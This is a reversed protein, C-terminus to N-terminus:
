GNDVVDVVDFCGYFIYIHGDVLSPDIDTKSVVDIRYIRFLQQMDLIMLPLLM